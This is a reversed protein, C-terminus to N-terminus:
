INISTKLVPTKKAQKTQYKGSAKDARGHLKNAKAALRGSRNYKGASYATNSRAGVKSARSELKDSRKGHPIAIRARSEYPPKKPASSMKRESKLAARVRESRPSKNSLRRNGTLSKSVNSVSSAALEASM